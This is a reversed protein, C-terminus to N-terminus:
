QQAGAQLVSPDGARVRASHLWALCCVRARTSRGPASPLMGKGEGREQEWCREEEPPPSHYFAGIVTFVFWFAFVVAFGSYAFRGGAVLM